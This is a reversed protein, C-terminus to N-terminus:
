LQHLIFDVNGMNGAAAEVTLRLVNHMGVVEQRGAAICVKGPLYLLASFDVNGHQRQARELLRLEHLLGNGGAAGVQNGHCAAGNRVGICRILREM